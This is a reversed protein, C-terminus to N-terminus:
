VSYKKDGAMSVAYLEGEVQGIATGDAGYVTKDQSEVFSFWYMATKAALQEETPNVGFVFRYEGSDRDLYWYQISKTGEPADGWEVTLTRSDGDADFCEFVQLTEDITAGQPVKREYSLTDKAEEPSYVVFMNKYYDDQASSGSSASVPTGIESIDDPLPQTVIHTTPSAVYYNGFGDAGYLAGCTGRTQMNQGKTKFFEPDYLSTEGSYFWVFGSKPSVISTGDENCTISDAKNLTYEVNESRQTHKIGLGYWDITWIKVTQVASITISNADARTIQISSLTMEHAAYTGINLANDRVFDPDTYNPRTDWFISTGIFRGQLATLDTDSQFQFLLRPTYGFTVEGTSISPRTSHITSFPMAIFSIPDSGVDRVDYDFDNKWKAGSYDCLRALMPSVCIRPTSSIYEVEATVNLIEKNDKRIGPLAAVIRPEMKGGPVKPLALLEGRYLDIVQQIATRNETDTFVDYDGVADPQPSFALGFNGEAEFWGEDAVAKYWDQVSGTRADEDVGLSENFSPNPDKIYNGYSINDPMSAHFCLAQGYSFTDADSAYFGDIPAFSAKVIEDPNQAYGTAKPLESYSFASLLGSADEVWLKTPPMKYTKGDDGFVVYAHVLESRTITNDYSLYNYPRIQAWVSTYYNKLVYDKALSYQALVAKSYVSYTISYVIEDDGEVSGLAQLGSVSEYRATITRSRNGLRDAKERQYVGDKGLMTLSGDSKDQAVVRDSGGKKSVVLAGEYMPDYDVEFLFGKLWVSENRGSIWEGDEDRGFPTVMDSIGSYEAFSGEGLSDMFGDSYTGVPYIADLREAINQIYTKEVSWWGSPYSYSVGWGEIYRSGIDYGVTCLKYQAMEDISTPPDDKFENWDQSLVDREANLRVLKTIDQKVLICKKVRTGEANVATVPKYYCMKVSNIRYIPLSTELRMNSITLLAEDSNRFGLLEVRHCAKDDSVAQTLPRKLADAYSDASQGDVDSTIADEDYDFAGNRKTIDLCTIVGDVVKPIMDKALMIQSLCERLTPTNMSFEPCITEGFAAKLGEEDIGYERFYEWKGNQGIKSLPSYFSVFRNIAEFCTLTDGAGPVPQTIAVNPLVVTELGKTESFLSIQYKYKGTKLGLRDRTWSQVLFHKYFGNRRPATPLAREFATIYWVQYYEFSVNPVYANVKPDYEFAIRPPFGGADGSCDLIVEKWDDFIIEAGEGDRGYDRYKDANPGAIGQLELLAKSTFPSSLARAGEETLAVGGNVAILYGRKRADDADKPLWNLGGPTYWPDVEADADYVFAHSYPKLDASLDDASAITIQASDLTENYEESFTAGQVVDYDKGAIRIKLKM